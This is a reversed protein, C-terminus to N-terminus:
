SFPQQLTLCVFRDDNRIEPETNQDCTSVQTENLIGRFLVELSTLISWIVKVM